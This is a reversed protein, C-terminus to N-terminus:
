TKRHEASVVLTMGMVAPMRYAPPIRYWTPVFESAFQSSWVDLAKLADEVAASMTFRRVLERRVRVIIAMMTPQHYVLFNFGIVVEASFFTVSVFVMRRLPM